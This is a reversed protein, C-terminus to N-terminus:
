CLLIVLVGGVEFLPWYKTLYRLNHCLGEDGYCLVADLDEEEMRKQLRKVRDFYESDPISKLM